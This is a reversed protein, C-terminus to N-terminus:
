SSLIKYMGKPIEGERYCSKSKYYFLRLRDCSGRQIQSFVFYWKKRSKLAKILRDSPMKLYGQKIEITEEKIISSAM